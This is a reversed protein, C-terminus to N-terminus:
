SEDTAPADVPFDQGDDVVGSGLLQSGKIDGNTKVEKDGKDPTVVGSKEDAPMSTMEKPPTTKVDGKGDGGNMSGGCSFGTVPLALFSLGLIGFLLTSKIKKM